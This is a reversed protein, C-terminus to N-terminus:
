VVVISGTQRVVTSGSLVIKTWVWWRKAALTIVGNPGIECQAVYEGIENTDWGGTKWDGTAPEALMTPLFAFSVTGGTPDLPAGATYSRVTAVVPETSLTQFRQQSAVLQVEWKSTPQGIVVVPQAV